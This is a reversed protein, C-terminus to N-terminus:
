GGCSEFVEDNLRTVYFYLAEDNEIAAAIRDALSRDFSIHKLM